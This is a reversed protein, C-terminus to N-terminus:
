PVVLGPPGALPGPLALQSVGSLNKATELCDLADLSPPVNEGQVAFEAAVIAKEQTWATATSLMGALLAAATVSDIAGGLAMEAIPRLQAATQSGPRWDEFDVMAFTQEQESWIWNGAHRDDVGLGLAFWVWAGVQRATTASARGPGAAGASGLPVAGPLWEIAAAEKGGISPAAAPVTLLGCRLAGPIGLTRAAFAALYERRTGNAVGRSSVKLGVIRGGDCQLKFHTGGNAGNGVPDIAGVTVAIGLAV